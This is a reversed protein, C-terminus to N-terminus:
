KLLHSIGKVDVQGDAYYVNIADRDSKKLSPEASKKCLISHIEDKALTKDNSGESKEIVSIDTIAKAAPAAKKEVLKTLFAAVADFNKQLTALKTNAEGLESKLLEVEKAPAAEVKVEVPKIDESKTMPANEQAAPAPAAPAQGESMAMDSCQAIKAIVDHHVKLEGKSMSAYMKEMHSIDEADYDCGEAGPAAAHAQGEPKAEAAPAAEKGPAPHAEGEPKAEAAPKAEGEPKKEEPKAEKKEPKKEGEAKVLDEVVPEVVPETNAIEEAKALHTTFEREVDEILKSLQTETYQM